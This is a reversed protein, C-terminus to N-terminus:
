YADMYAKIEESIKKRLSMVERVDVGRAERIDTKLQVIDGVAQINEIDM